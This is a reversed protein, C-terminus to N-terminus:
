LDIEVDVEYGLIRAKIILLKLAEMEGELLERSAPGPPKLHRVDAVKLTRASPHDIRLGYEWSGMPFRERYRRRLEQLSM